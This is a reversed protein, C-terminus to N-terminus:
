GPSLGEKWPTEITTRREETLRYHGTEGPPANRQEKTSM